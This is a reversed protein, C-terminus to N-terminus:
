AGSGPVKNKYITLEVTYFNADSHNHLLYKNKFNVDLRRKLNYLGLNTSPSLLPIKRIKNRCSFGLSDPELTINIVVPYEPENLEGYKMANEVLTILSLPPLIHGNPEGDVIMKVAKTERFRMRHIDLLLKLNEIEKQASVKGPQDEATEISYRMMSSLKAINAALPESIRQAQNFLVNLTNHLFHPNIEALFFAQELLLNEHRARLDADKLRANELQAKLDKEATHRTQLRKNFNREVYVYLMAYLFYQILGLLAGRIFDDLQESSYLTVGLMPMVLYIYCYGIIIVSGFLFSFMGVVWSTGLKDTARLLVISGYFLGIFPLLFLLTRYYKVDPDAISNAAYVLISYVIWILSHIFLTATRKNTKTLPSKM